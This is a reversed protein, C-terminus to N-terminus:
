KMYAQYLCIRIGEERLAAALRIENAGSHDLSQDRRLEVWHVTAFAKLSM